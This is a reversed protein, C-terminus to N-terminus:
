LSLYFSVSKGPRHAVIRDYIEDNNNESENKYHCHGYIAEDDPDIQNQLNCYIDEGSSISSFSSPSTAEPFPRLFNIKNFKLFNLM